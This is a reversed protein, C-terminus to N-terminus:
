EDREEKELIPAVSEGLEVMEMIYTSLSKRGPRLREMERRRRELWDESVRFNFLKDKM